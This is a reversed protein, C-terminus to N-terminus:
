KKVVAARKGPKLRVAEGRYRIGKEKYPDPRRVKRVDAAVQGVLAKDIGRVTVRQIRGKEEQTLEFTIGQPAKLRIAHSYGVNLILEQGEVQARFGVGTIELTKEHGKTVGEVRNNILTRALGHQSRLTRDNAPREIKLAGDERGVKLRRDVSVKLEGKPGKVAVDNGPGIDVTVGAPIQIPKLGVRSM